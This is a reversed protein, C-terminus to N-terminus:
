AQEGKNPYSLFFDTVDQKTTDVPAQITVNNDKVFSIFQRIDTTYATITLASSDKGQLEQVFETLLQEFSKRNNM